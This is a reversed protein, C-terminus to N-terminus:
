DLKQQSFFIKNGKSLFLGMHGLRGVNSCSIQRRIFNHLIKINKLSIKLMRFCVLSRSIVVFIHLLTVKFFSNTM